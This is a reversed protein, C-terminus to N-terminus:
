IKVKEKMCYILFLTGSKTQNDFFQIKDKHIYGHFSLLWHRIQLFLAVAFAVVGKNEHSFLHSSRVIYVKNKDSEDHYLPLFESRYSLFTLNQEPTGDYKDM